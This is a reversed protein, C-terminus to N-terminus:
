RERRMERLGRREERRENQEEDKSM